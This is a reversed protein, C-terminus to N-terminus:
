KTEELKVKPILMPIQWLPLLPQEESKIQSAEQDRKQLQEARIFNYKESTIAADMSADRLITPRLFIMLNRKTTSSNRYRFLNGVLPIDGLGPVKSINEKVEETILGGLVLTQNDLVMVSTKLNRKNTILDVAGQVQPLLSSVELELDMRVTDGENVHPRVKLKLGVDKREVTSFPNVPSAGNGGGSNLNAYQGTLFPVNQGASIEAEEHDLTVVNPTSLINTSTDGGLAKVLAGIQLLPKESGPLRITGGIYGFNLGGGVSAPNQAASFIGGLGGAGPFNTGGIYGSTLNGDADSDVNTSQWQVGIEKAMEDSVEAIIGEIHIQVRRVDLQRIVSQLGRFVAPDASIILANTEKHAKISAPKPENAAGSSGTLTQATSELVSVLQEASAYRLYVVQTSDGSELPTDLHSILARLRLRGARDGSLLISNTRADAFVKSQSSGLAANKEENLTTLTRSLEIADAHSLPIVEVSADSQTDIRKIISELRSINGARDTVILTNSGGHVAMKGAAPILPSLIAILEAAPVHKLTILRTVLADSGEGNVINTSDQMAAAEPVIKVMSGAPVAVYGHVRLVSTFVRYVEDASMPKSSIVNVKGEVRPDIIFNKGTIESVTAILARIDADKLNLTHTGNPQSPTQALSAQMGALALLISLSLRLNFKAKSPIKNKM